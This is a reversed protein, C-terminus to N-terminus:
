ALYVEIILIDHMSNDIINKIKSVTFNIVSKNVIFVNLAISYNVVIINVISYIVLNDTHM